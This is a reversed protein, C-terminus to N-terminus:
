KKELLAAISAPMSIVAQHRKHYAQIAARGSVSKVITEAPFSRKKGDPLLVLYSIGTSKIEMKIARVVEVKPEAVEVEPSSLRRRKERRPRGVVPQPAPEAPAPVVVAPRADPYLRDVYPNKTPDYQTGALKQERGSYCSPAQKNKGAKVKSTDTWGGNRDIYLKPGLSMAELLPFDDITAVQKPFVPKKCVDSSSAM